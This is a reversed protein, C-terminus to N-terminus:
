NNENTEEGTLFYITDLELKKAATAVQELTVKDINDCWIDLSLHQSSLENMFFFDIIGGSGDFQERFNNILMAKTQNLEADSIIGNQLDAIQKKIITTAKDYNQNEIGSYLITIGTFSDYNSASFYALSEKERVNTFLKSHPFAGLIGNAVQMAYYEEDQITINSFYGLNLKSQNVNQKDIVADTFRSNNVVSYVKDYNVPNSEFDFEEKIEKAYKESDESLVFIDIKNTIILDQYYTYLDENTLEDLDELYGDSMVGFPQNQGMEEFLRKISFRMKNDYVAEIKEGLERKSQAFNKENFKGNEVYPNLVIDKFVSLSESFISEDLYNENVISLTFSLVSSLGRKSVSASINAGYMEELKLSIDRQTKYNMSGNMLLLSLLARKTANERNLEETLRINVRVTKFKNTTILHLKKNDYIQENYNM